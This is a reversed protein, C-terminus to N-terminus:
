EPSRLTSRLTWAALFPLYAQVVGIAVLSALMEITALAPESFSLFRFVLGHIAGLLLVLTVTVLATTAGGAAWRAEIVEPPAFAFRELRGLVSDRVERSGCGYVACSGYHTVCERWCGVHYRAECRERACVRGRAPLEGHCYACLAATTALQLRM